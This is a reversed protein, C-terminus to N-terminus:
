CAVMEHETVGGGLEEVVGGGWLEVIVVVEVLVAGAVVNVGGHVEVPVEHKVVAMSFRFAEISAPSKRVKMRVSVASPENPHIIIDLSM